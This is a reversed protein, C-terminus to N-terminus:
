FGSLASLVSETTPGWPSSGKVLRAGIECASGQQRTWVVEFQAAAGNGSGGAPALITVRVITGITVATRLTVRCGGESIDKTTTRESFYRGTADFGRVQVEQARKERRSRRRDVSAVESSVERREPADKANEFWLDKSTPM